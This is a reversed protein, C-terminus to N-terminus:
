DSATASSCMVSIATVYIKEAHTERESDRQCLHMDACQLHLFLTMCAYANIDIVGDWSQDTDHVVVVALLSFQCM